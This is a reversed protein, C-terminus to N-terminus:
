NIFDIEGDLEHLHRWASLAFSRKRERESKDKHVCLAGAVWFAIVYPWASYDPDIWVIELMTLVAFAACLGVFVIAFLKAATADAERSIASRIRARHRRAKSKDTEALADRLARDLTVKEM